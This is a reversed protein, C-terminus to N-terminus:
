AHGRAHGSGEWTLADLAPLTIIFEAGKGAGASIAQVSGGHLEVLGKVVALGLGMGARARASDQAGRTFPEFLRPLLEPEIGAGTDRVGIEVSAGARALSLV